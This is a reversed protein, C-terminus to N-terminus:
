DATERALADTEYARPTDRFANRPFQDLLLVSALAGQATLSWGILDGRLAAEHAALFRQRFEADFANRKAFWRKTGAAQWFDIVESFSVSHM